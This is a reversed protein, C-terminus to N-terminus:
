APQAAAGKNRGATLGLATNKSVNLATLQNNDCLLVDLATCASLDLTKLQNYSCFLTKLSTFYEIGKLSTIECYACDIATVGAIEERSLVGNGNQDFNSVCARFNPDPFNTENIAVDGDAAATPAAAPLLCLLLVLALCLSIIRKNM